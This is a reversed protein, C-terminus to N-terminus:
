SVMHRLTDIESSQVLTGLDGKRTHMQKAHATLSVREQSGLVSPLYCDNQLLCM